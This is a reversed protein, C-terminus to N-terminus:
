WFQRFYNFTKMINQKNSQNTKIKVKVINMLTKKNFFANISLLMKKM